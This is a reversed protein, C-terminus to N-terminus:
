RNEPTRNTWSSWLGGISFVEDVPVRAYYPVKSGGPNYHPEFYGTSPIVCRKHEISLKYPGPIFSRKPKPTRSGVAKTKKSM